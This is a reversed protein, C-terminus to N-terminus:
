AYVSNVAELADTFGGVGAIRAFDCCVRALCIFTDISCRASRLGVVAVVVARTRKSKSAPVAILVDVLALGIRTSISGGADVGVSTVFAFALLTELASITKDIGIVTNRIGAEIAASTEVADALESTEANVPKSTMKALVIDVFTSRIGTEITGSTM